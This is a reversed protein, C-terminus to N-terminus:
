CRGPVWEMTPFARHARSIPDIMVANEPLEDAHQPAVRRVLHEFRQRAEAQDRPRSQACQGRGSRRDVKLRRPGRTTTWLFSDDEKCTRRRDQGEQDVLIKLGGICLTP